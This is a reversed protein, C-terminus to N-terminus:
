RLTVPPVTFDLAAGAPNGIFYVTFGVPKKVDTAPPLKDVVARGAAVVKGGKTAVCFITVRRQLVDSRNNVNGHVFAGDADGDLKVNSLTLHPPDKPVVVPKAPEGVKVVVKAPTSAAIIQNHVWYSPKGRPLLPMSTLARELGPADNAFVKKGQADALAIAIPVDAQDAKGTNEMEVVVATGNKDRLITSGLVDVDKNIEGIKLGVRGALAQDGQARLAAAKDQSSECASLATAALAVAIVVPLRM